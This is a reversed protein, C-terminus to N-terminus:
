RSKALLIYENIREVLEQALQSHADALPTTNYDSTGWTVIDYNTPLTNRSIFFSDSLKEQLIVEPQDKRLDIIRVRVTLDLNSSLEQDPTNKKPILQNHHRLFEILVVFDRPHFSNKLWTLDQGFLDQAYPIEYSAMDDESIFLTKKQSIKTIVLDTFEESLSWPHSFDTSDVVPIVAVTPKARGDEYYKTFEEKKRSSGCSLLVFLPVLLIYRMM